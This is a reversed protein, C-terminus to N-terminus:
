KSENIDERRQFVQNISLLFFSGVSPVRRKRQGGELRLAHRKRCARLCWGCAGAHPPRRGCPADEHPKPESADPADSGRRPQASSSLLRVTLSAM